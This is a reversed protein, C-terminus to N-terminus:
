SAAKPLTNDRKSNYASAFVRDCMIYMTHMAVFLFLFFLFEAEKM